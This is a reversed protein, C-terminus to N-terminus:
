QINFSADQAHHKKAYLAKIEKIIDEITEDHTDHWPVGEHLDIFQDATLRTERFFDSLVDVVTSEEHGRGPTKIESKLTDIFGQAGEYDEAYWYISDHLEQFDEDNLNNEKIFQDLNRLFESAKM